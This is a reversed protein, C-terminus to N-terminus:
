KTIGCCLTKMKCFSYKKQGLVDSKYKKKTYKKEIYINHLLYFHCCPFTERRTHATRLYVGSHSPRLLFGPCSTRPGARRWIWAPQEGSGRAGAGSGGTGVCLGRWRWAARCPSMRWHREWFLYLSWKRTRTSLWSMNKIIFKALLVNNSRYNRYFMYQSSAM